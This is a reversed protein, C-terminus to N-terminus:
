SYFCLEFFTGGFHGTYFRLIIYQINANKRKVFIGVFNIEYIYNRLVVSPHVCLIVYWQKVVEVIFNQQNLM